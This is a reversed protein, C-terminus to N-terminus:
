FSSSSCTGRSQTGECHFGGDAGEYCSNAKSVSLRQEDAHVHCNLGVGEWRCTMLSHDFRGSRMRDGVWLFRPGHTMSRFAHMWCTRLSCRRCSNLHSRSLGSDANILSCFCLVVHDLGPCAMRHCKARADSTANTSNGRLFYVFFLSSYNKTVTKDFVRMQAKPVCMNLFVWSKPM